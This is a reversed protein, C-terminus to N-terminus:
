VNLISILLNILYSCTQLYFGPEDASDDVSYGNDVDVEAQGTLLLVLFNACLFSKM